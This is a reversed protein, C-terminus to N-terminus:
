QCIALVVTDSQPVGVSLYTHRTNHPIIVTGKTSNYCICKIKMCSNAHIVTDGSCVHKHSMVTCVEYSFFVM